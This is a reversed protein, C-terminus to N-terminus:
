VQLHSGLPAFLDRVALRLPPLLPETLLESGALIRILQLGYAGGHYVEVNDYRPDMMWLRPLPLEEYFAKKLVTDCRHDDSAVIEAVLWPKENAATILVLDPCLLSQPTFPVQTRPPLLRSVPMAQMCAAMVDHLRRCIEEHRQNPPLRLLIEGHLQEEYPPSAGPLPPSSSSM